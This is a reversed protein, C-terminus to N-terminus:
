LDGFTKGSLKNENTELKTSENMQYQQGSLASQIQDKKNHLFDKEKENQKQIQTIGYERSKEQVLRSMWQETGIYVTSNALREIFIAGFDLQTTVHKM